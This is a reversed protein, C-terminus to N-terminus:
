SVLGAAKLADWAKLATQYDGSAVAIIQFRKTAAENLQDLEGKLAADAMDDEETEFVYNRDRDRGCLAPQTAYQHIAVATWGGFNVAQIPPQTGDNQGYNAYWLPLTAFERSTGMKSPWWYSGTYIGAHLGAKQVLTVCARLAAVRVPPTLGESENPPDSECDLWVMEVGNAKAVNVAAQTQGATDFGFYLFAYTGIVEVGAAQLAKVMQDAIDPKQCGVIAQTLGAAKLQDIVGPNLIDADYNSFDLCLSM